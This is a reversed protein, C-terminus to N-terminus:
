GQEEGPRGRQRQAVGAVICANCANDRDVLACRHAYIETMKMRARHLETKASALSCGIIQAAEARSFGLQDCLILAARQKAPLTMQLCNLCTAAVEKIELTAEPSLYLGQEVQGLLEAHEAFWQWRREERWPPRRRQHDLCLNTAIRHLWTALSSRLEFAAIGRLARLLTEQVLDEADEQSGTMKYCLRLLSGRHAEVLAAFADRDGSQARQLLEVAGDM